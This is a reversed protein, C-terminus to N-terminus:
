PGLRRWAGPSCGTWRRFARHFASTESFGLAFAIEGPSYRGASLMAEARRRLERQRLESFSTREEALRRRLTRESVALQGAAHALTVDAPGHGLLRGVRGAWTELATSAPLAQAALGDLFARLSTNDGTLSYGLLASPIVLRNAPRGGVVVSEGVTEAWEHRLTAGRSARVEVREPRAEPRGLYARMRSWLLGFTAEVFVQELEAPVDFSLALTDGDFVLEAGYAVLAFYRAFDGLCARATPAASCLHDLVGMAGPELTRAGRLAWGPEGAGVLASLIAIVKPLPLQTSEARAEFSSATTGYPGLVADVDLGAARASLVLCRLASTDVLLSM